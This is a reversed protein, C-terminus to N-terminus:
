HVQVQRACHTSQQICWFTRHSQPTQGVPFPPPRWLTHSCDGCRHEHHQLLSPLEENRMTFEILESSSSGQNTLYRNGGITINLENCNFLSLPAIHVRCSVKQICAVVLTIHRYVIHTPMKVRPGVAAGVWRRKLGKKWLHVATTQTAAFGTSEVTTWCQQRNSTSERPTPPTKPPCM